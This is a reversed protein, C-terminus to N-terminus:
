RCMRYFRLANEYHKLFIPKLASPNGTEANEFSYVPIKIGECVFFGNNKDQRDFQFVDARYMTEMSGESVFHGGQRRRERNRQLRNDFGAFINVVLSSVAFGAPINRIIEGVSRQYIEDAKVDFAEMYESDAGRSFEVIYKRGEGVQKATLELVHDLVVPNTVRYGGSPDAVSYAANKDPYFKELNNQKIFYQFLKPNSQALEDAKFFKYLPEVDDLRAYEDGAVANIFSSKGGCAAGLVFIM